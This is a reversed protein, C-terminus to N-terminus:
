LSPQASSVSATNRTREETFELIRRQLDEDSLPAPIEVATTLVMTALAMLREALTCASRGTGHDSCSSSARMLIEASNILVSAREIDHDNPFTM